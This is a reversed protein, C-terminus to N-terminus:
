NVKEDAVRTMFLMVIGALILLTTFAVGPATFVLLMGVVIVSILRGINLYFERMYITEAIGKKKSNNYFMSFYPLQVLAWSLGGFGQVIAIASFTKLISRAMLSISNGIAGIKLIRHKNKDTTKKGMYVTFIALLLSSITFVGGISSLPIALIFLLVPWFYKAAMFRFGEALFPVAEKKHKFLDKLHFRFPQHLERSCFLPAVSLFLFFVVVLFLANFSFVEIIVGGLFPGLVSAATSFARVLGFQKACKEEKSFRAFEMHFGVFYFSMSASYLIPYIILPVKEGIALTLTDIKYMSLFFMILLPVSLSISHRVGKKSAYLLGFLTFFINSVAYLSFFIVLDFFSYGKQLLFIPIFISITSVAFSRLSHMIYVENIEKQLFYPIKIHFYAM